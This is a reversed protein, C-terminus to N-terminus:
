PELPACTAFRYTAGVKACSSEDTWGTGGHWLDAM